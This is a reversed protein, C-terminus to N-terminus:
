PTLDFFVVDARSEIDTHHKMSHQMYTAFCPKMILLNNYNNIM